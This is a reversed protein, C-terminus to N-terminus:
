QLGKEKKLIEYLEKYTVLDTPYHGWYNESNGEGSLFTDIVKAEEKALRKLNDFDCLWKMMKNNTHFSHEVILANKCGVASASRLVTYFDKAVGNGSNIDQYYRDFIQTNGQCGMEKKVVDGLTQCFNRFKIDLNTVTPIMVVRDVSPTDCANSHLSIFLDAGEAKLGREELSPNDAVSLRTSKLTYKKLSKLEQYLYYGLYYMQYGEYHQGDSYPRDNAGHGEDIVIKM